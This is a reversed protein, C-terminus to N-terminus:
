SILSVNLVFSFIQCILKRTYFRAYFVVTYVLSVLHELLGLRTIKTCVKESKTLSLSQELETMPQLFM